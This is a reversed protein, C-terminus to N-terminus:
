LSGDECGKQLCQDASPRTGPEELLMRTVLNRTRKDLQKAKKVMETSWVGIWQRSPLHDIGSHDLPGLQYDLMIVGASWIDASSRYGTKGAVEPAVYPLSGCFTRVRNNYPLYRSFGFDSIVITFPDDKTILLNSPKLDRHVVGRAHLHHLGLLTQRFASLYQGLRLDTRDELNGRPCYPMLILPPEEHFDIVEM